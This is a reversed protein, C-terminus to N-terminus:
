AMRYIFERHPENTFLSLSANGSWTDQRDILTPVLVLCGNEALRRAFQAEAPVGETLGVLMEPSWDADPLAVVGAVPARTPELLLGEGDVGPLVRWRVAYVKYGAGEAVLSSGGRGAELEPGPAGVREDIVGIAKRFRERNPANSKEYAEQSSFDLQWLAPRRQVSAATERLLFGRIGEVMQAALDGQVELPKTGPLQEARVWVCGVLVVGLLRTLRPFHFM